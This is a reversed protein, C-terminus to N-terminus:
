HRAGVVRAVGFDDTWTRTQSGRLMEAVAEHMGVGVEVLCWGGSPVASHWEAALRRYVDYGDAGGDLALRPEHALEPQLGALESTAIYPPNMMMLAVPETLPRTLDGLRFDIRGRVGRLEANEGALALAEPSIDTGILRLFPRELALSVIVAGSGVGLEAVLSEDDPPLLELAARVLCETDPRAILARPDCRFSRGLFETDGLLYQLPEGAARRRAVGLTHDAAGADVPTEPRTLVTARSLGTVKTVLWMAEADANGTRALLRRVEGHLAGVNV